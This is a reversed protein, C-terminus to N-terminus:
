FSRRPRKPRAARTAAPRSAIPDTDSRSLTKRLAATRHATSGQRRVQLERRELPERTAQEARTLREARSRDRHKM